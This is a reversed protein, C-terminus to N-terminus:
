KDKSSIDDGVDPISFQLSKTTNDVHINKHVNFRLLDRNRLFVSFRILCDILTKFLQYVLSEDLTFSLVKLSVILLDVSSIEPNKNRLPIFQSFELHLDSSDRSILAHNYSVFYGALYSSRTSPFIKEKQECPIKLGPLQSITAM